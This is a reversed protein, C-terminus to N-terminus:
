LCSSCFFFSVLLCEFIAETVNSIPILGTSVTDFKIKQKKNTKKKVLHFEFIDIFMGAYIYVM